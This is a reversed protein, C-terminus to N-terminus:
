ACREQEAQIGAVSGFEPLQVEAEPSRTVCKEHLIFGDPVFNGFM